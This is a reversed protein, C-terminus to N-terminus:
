AAIAGYNRLYDYQPHNKILDARLALKSIFLELLHENFARQKYSALSFVQATAAWSRQMQEIKAINVAALAANLHFHLAKQDRSQCDTLGTFQKADRFLFEIQFRSAYYSFIREASLECDTSCLLVYRPKDAKRKDLVVVVRINRKLTVSNVILTHLTVGPEVEGGFDFRSLDSISVKGDFARRRGRGERQAGTYLFRLNADVRLKTILHFDERCVGSVFKRRAFAGDVLLLKTVQQPLCPLCSRFHQLYFDMRTEEPLETPKPKPQKTRNALAPRPPTQQVSLTFATSRTVDVVAISSAELGREARHTCGNFFRDLGYTLKGSKPIFTADQAVLLTATSRVAHNIALRNFDPFDFEQRFQRHFTRESYNSYRALNRFNVRGRLCSIVAFLALVFKRQPQHIRPMQKLIHTVVTMLWKGLLPHKTVYM